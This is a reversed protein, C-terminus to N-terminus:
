SHYVVLSVWYGFPIQSLPANACAWLGWFFHSALSFARVEAVIDDPISQIDSVQLYENIFLMMQENTPYNEPLEYYYPYDPNTYDYTWELFHNALDFGRYNYSCYEFDILVLQDNKDIVEDDELDNHILINGEQMDNHSFVVPSNSNTIYQKLWIMENKLDYNKVKLVQESYEDVIKNKGICKEITNLWRDSTQWLWQPEKSIPVDMNHIASM